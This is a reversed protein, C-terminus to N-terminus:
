NIKINDQHQKIYIMVNVKCNLYIIIVIDTEETLNPIIKNGFHIYNRLAISLM